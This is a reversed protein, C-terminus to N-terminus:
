ILPMRSPKSFQTVLANLFVPPKCIYAEQQGNLFPAMLIYIEGELLYHAQESLLFVGEEPIIECVSATSGCVGSM